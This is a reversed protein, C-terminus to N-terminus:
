SKAYVRAQARTAGLLAVLKYAVVCVALGGLLISTGAPSAFSEASETRSLLLALLIWPAAVGLKAITLTASRKARAQAMAANAARARIAHQKLMPVLGIGGLEENVIFLKVFEDVHANQFAPKLKPLSDRLRRSNLDALMESLGGRLVMPAKACALEISEAPSVGASLASALSDIFAPWAEQHRIRSRSKAASRFGLVLSGAGM